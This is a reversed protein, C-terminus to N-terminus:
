AKAPVKKKNAGNPFSSIPAMNPNEVFREYLGLTDLNLTKAKNLATLAEQIIDMAKEGVAVDKLGVTAMGDSNWGIRGDQVTFKLLGHEEESFSLDAELDRVIRLTTIDGTKPVVNLLTLRELVSLEM